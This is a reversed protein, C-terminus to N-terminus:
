ALYPATTQCAARADPRIRERFDGARVFRYVVVDYRIRRLRGALVGVYRAIHSVLLGRGFFPGWKHTMRRTAQRDHDVQVAQRPHSQLLRYFAEIRAKLEEKSTFSARRMLKRALISFWIEIQNLWSAHRPGGRHQV